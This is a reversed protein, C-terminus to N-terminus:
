VVVLQETLTEVEEMTEADTHTSLEEKWGTESGISECNKGDASQQGDVEVKVPVCAVASFFMQCRWRCKYAVAPTSTIVNYLQQLGAQSLRRHLLDKHAQCAGTFICWM